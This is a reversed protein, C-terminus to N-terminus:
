YVVSSWQVLDGNDKIQPSGECQYDTRAAMSADERCMAINGHNAIPCRVGNRCREFLNAFLPCLIEKKM